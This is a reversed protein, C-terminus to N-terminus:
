TMGGQDIGWFIVQLDVVAEIKGTRIGSELLSKYTFFVDEGAIRAAVRRAGKFILLIGGSACHLIATSQM